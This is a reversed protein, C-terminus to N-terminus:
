ERAQEILNILHAADSQCGDESKGYEEPNKTFDEHWEVLATAIEDQTATVEREAPSM